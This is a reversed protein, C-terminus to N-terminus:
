KRKEFAKALDALIDRPPASPKGYISKAQFGLDHIEKDGHGLGSVHGMEHALTGMFTGPGSDYEDIYYQRTPGTHADSTWDKAMSPGFLNPNITVRNGVLDTSGQLNTKAYDNDGFKSQRLTAFVADTPSNRIEPSRGRMEPIDTLLRDVDRAFHTGGVVQTQPRSMPPLSVPPLDPGMYAMHPPLNEPKDYTYDGSAISFSRAKLRSVADDQDVIDKYLGRLVDLPNQGM